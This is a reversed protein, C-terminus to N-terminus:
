PRKWRLDRVGHMRTSTPKSQSLCPCCCSMRLSPPSGPVKVFIIDAIEGAAAMAQCKVHYDAQDMTSEQHHSRHAEKWEDVRKWFTDCELQICPERPTHFVFLDLEVPEEAMPVAIALFMMLAMLLTLAEENTNDEKYFKTENLTVM